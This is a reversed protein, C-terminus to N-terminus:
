QMAQVTINQTTGGDAGVGPGSPNIIINSGSLAFTHNDDGNPAAFALTGTFPAGNTWTVVVTAVTTGSPTSSPISPMTPNFTMQLAPASPTFVVDVYYNSDMWTQNPFGTSYTYVGNGGVSASAPATLPGNTVKNTLGGNTGTDDAYSGNTTYYAAIYTTNAAISIPSVFNVQEWCPISCTDNNATAQALRTGSASFLKAVYGGSAARHGRYFRIGSVTGAQNSSFKVGLTVAASDDTVAPNRPVTTGFITFTQATAPFIIAFSFISLLTFFGMISKKM